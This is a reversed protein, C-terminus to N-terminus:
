LHLRAHPPAAETPAASAAVHGNHKPIVVVLLAVNGPGPMWRRRRRWWRGGSRQAVWCGEGCVRSVGIAAPEGRDISRARHPAAGLASGGLRLVSAKPEGEVLRRPLAKEFRVVMIRLSPSADSRSHRM